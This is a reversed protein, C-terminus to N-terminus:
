EINLHDCLQKIDERHIREASKLRSQMRCVFLYELNTKRIEDYNIRRKDDMLGKIRYLTGKQGIEGPVEVKELDYGMWPSEPDTGYYFSSTKNAHIILKPRLRELEFQTVRLLEAKLELPVFEEFERQQKTVRLPFLDIYGVKKQAIYEALIIKTWLNWYRGTCERFPCPEAKERGDFSPNVGSLLIEGTPNNSCLWFGRRLIKNLNDVLYPNEKMWWEEQNEKWVKIAGNYANKSKEM